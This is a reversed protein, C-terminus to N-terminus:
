VTIEIAEMRLSRGITGVTIEDGCQWGMWGLDQVQAAAGVPFDNALRLRDGTGEPNTVLSTNPGM